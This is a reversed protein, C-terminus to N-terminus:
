PRFLYKGKQYERIIVKAAEATLPVGGKGLLGRKKAIDALMEESDEKMEVGYFKALSTIKAQRFKDILQVAAPEPDGLKEADLAANLALHDRGTEFDVVGPTDYLLLGPGLKIWQAGRTIGARFGTIAARRGSLANILSSKGVNPLGFIAIKTERALKPSNPAKAAIKARKEQATKKIIDLLLGVGNKTKSSVYVVRVGKPTREVTGLKKEDVLDAKTAAIIMKSQMGGEIKFIRTAYVDRADCVEILIDADRLLKKVM